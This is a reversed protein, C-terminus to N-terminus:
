VRRAIEVFLRFEDEECVQMMEEVVSRFSPGNLLSKHFRKISGNWVDRASRCSWLIHLCTEEKLTCIPCLDNTTVKRRFLSAKTSLIKHCARWLFNKAVNPIKLRWLRGWLDKRDVISSSEAQLQSLSKMAGHYANKMTFLGNPTDRWVVMDSRRVDIPIKLIAKVEKPLFLREILEKNWGQCDRNILEAVKADGNLERPFYHIAFTTPILVWKDGWIRTNEGDVKCFLREKLIDCAGLISIWAYSPKNGLKAELISSNAFYKERLIRSVLSDPSKWLRWCQKALLAKNFCNFDRFSMGWKSKPTGMKSWSMWHIGSAGWWFQQMMSNIKSCLTKPLMFVRLCYTPIAQIVAKLLIERGAQSLLKLKWDQLWKWVRDIISKFERTRSKGVLALLGLYKDYRQSCPIRM